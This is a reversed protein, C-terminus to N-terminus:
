IKTEERISSLSRQLGIPRQPSIHNWSIRKGISCTSNTDPLSARIAFVGLIAAALVTCVAPPHLIANLRKM